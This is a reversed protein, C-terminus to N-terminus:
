DNVAHSGAATRSPASCAMRHHTQLASSVFRAEDISLHVGDITRVKIGRSLEASTILREIPFVAIFAARIQRAHPTQELDPHIPLEFFIVQTGSAELASVQNRLMHMNAALLDPAIENAYIDREVTLGNALLTADFAPTASGKLQYVFSFLLNVPM